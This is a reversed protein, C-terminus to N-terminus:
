YKTFCLPCETRSFRYHHGNQKILFKLTPWFYNIEPFNLTHGFFLEPFTPRGIPCTFVRMFFVPGANALGACFFM